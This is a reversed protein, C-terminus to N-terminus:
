ESTSHPSSEMYICAFYLETSAINTPLVPLSSSYGNTDSGIVHLRDGCIAASPFPLPGPMNAVEYWTKSKVQLIEITTTWNDINICGGIVTVHSCYLTSVVAPNSRATRMQPYTECWLKNQRLTLLKNTSFSADRGGVATPEQNKLVVIITWLKSLPM